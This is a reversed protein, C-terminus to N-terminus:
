LGDNNIYNGGKNWIIKIIRLSMPSISCYDVSVIILGLFLMCVVQGQRQEVEGMWVGLSVEQMERIDGVPHM